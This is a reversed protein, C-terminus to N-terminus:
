HVSSPIYNPTRSEEFLEPRSLFLDRLLIEGHISLRVLDGYEESWEHHIYGRHQLDFCFSSTDADSYTKQFQGGVVKKIITFPVWVIEDEYEGEVLVLASLIRIHKKSITHETLPCTTVHILLEQHHGQRLMRAFHTEGCSDSEQPLTAKLFADIDIVLTTSM